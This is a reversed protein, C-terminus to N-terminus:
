TNDHKRRVHRGIRIKRIPLKQTKMFVKRSHHYNARAFDKRRLLEVAAFIRYREERIRLPYRLPEIKAEFYEIIAKGVDLLAKIAYIEAISM